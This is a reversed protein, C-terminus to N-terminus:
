DTFYDFKIRLEDGAAWVHPVDLGVRTATGHAQAQIRATGDSLAISVGAYNTTGSDIIMCVDSCQLGSTTPIAPLSFFWAGTGPNTTTGYTMNIFGSVRLGVKSYYGVL